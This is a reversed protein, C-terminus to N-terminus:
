SAGVAPLWAHFVDRYPTGSREWELGQLVDYRQEVLAYADGGAWYSDRFTFVRGVLLQNPQYRQDFVALTYGV